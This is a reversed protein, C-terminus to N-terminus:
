GQGNYWELITLDGARQMDDVRRCSGFGSTDQGLCLYFEM